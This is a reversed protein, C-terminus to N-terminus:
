FRFAVKFDGHKGTAYEFAQEWDELQFISSVMGETKLTGNAIHEIM